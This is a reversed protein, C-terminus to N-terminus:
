PSGDVGRPRNEQPRLSPTVDNRRLSLRTRRWFADTQCPAIDSHQSAVRRRSLAHIVVVSAFRRRKGAIDSDNLVLQCLSLAIQCHTLIVRCFRTDSGEISEKPVQLVDNGCSLSGSFCTPSQIRIPTPAYYSPFSRSECTPVDARLPKQTFGMTKAGIDSPDERFRDRYTNTCLRDM